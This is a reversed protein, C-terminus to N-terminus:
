LSWPWKVVGEKLCAGTKCTRLRPCRTNFEIGYPCSGQFFRHEEGLPKYVEALSPGFFSFSPTKTTGCLALAASDVTIVLDMERILAQWLPITLDSVVQSTNPVLSQLQLAIEREKANGSVFYFYPNRQKCLDQVIKQLMSFSLQKNVWRSGCAVMIRPALDVKLIELRSLEKENLKLVVESPFFPTSDQFFKQLLQLYRQQIQIGREVEVHESAAFFSPLEPVSKWGFGVKNKGKACAMILASKTNGQVDFVVDYTEKQLEKKFRPIERLAPWLQKRWRRSHFTIVRSLDPHAKLAEEYEYEVVWDIQAECYRRKLYDIVPFTQIIDGLSSTKIILFKM